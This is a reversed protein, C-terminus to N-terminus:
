FWHNIFTGTDLNHGMLDLFVKTPLLVQHNFHISLISELLFSYMDTGNNLINM